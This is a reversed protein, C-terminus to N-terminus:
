CFKYSWPALDDINSINLFSIITSINNNIDVNLSILQVSLHPLAKSINTAKMQGFVLGEFKM